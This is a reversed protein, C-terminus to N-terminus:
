IKKRKQDDRMGHPIKTRQNVVGWDAGGRGRGGWGGVGWIRDLRCAQLTTGKCDRSVAEQESSNPEEGKCASDPGSVEAQDMRRKKRLYLVNKFSVAIAVDM